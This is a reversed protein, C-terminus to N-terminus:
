IPLYIPAKYGKNLDNTKKKFHGKLYKLPPPTM